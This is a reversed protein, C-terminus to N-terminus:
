FLRLQSKIITICNAGNEFCGALRAENEPTARVAWEKDEPFWMRERAPIAAKFKELGEQWEGPFTVASVKFNFRYYERDNITTKRFNLLKM